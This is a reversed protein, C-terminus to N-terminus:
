SRNMPKFNIKGHKTANAQRTSVHFWQYCFPRTTKFVNEDREREREREIYIYIYKYIYINTYQGHFTSQLLDTITELLTVRSHLHRFNCIHKTCIQCIEWVGVPKRNILYFIYMYHCVPLPIKVYKRFIIQVYISVTVLISFIYGCGRM